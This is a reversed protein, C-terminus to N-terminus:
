RLVRFCSQTMPWAARHAAESGDALISAAARQVLIFLGRGDHRERERGERKGALPRRVRAGARATGQREAGGGAGGVLGSAGGRRRFNGRQLFRGRTTPSATPSRKKEAPGSSWRRRIRQWGANGSWASSDMRSLTLRGRRVRSGRERLGEEVAPPQGAPAWHRHAHSGLV